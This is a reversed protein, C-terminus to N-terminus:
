SCFGTQCQQQCQCGARCERSFIRAFQDLHRRHHLVVHQGIHAIMQHCKLFDQAMEGLSVGIVGSLHGLAPKAHRRKIQVPAECMAWNMGSAIAAAPVSICRAALRKTRTACSASSAGSPSARCATKPANCATVAAHLAQWWDKLILYPRAHLSRRRGTEVAHRGGRAAPSGVPHDPGQSRGAARAGQPLLGLWRSQAHGHRPQVPHPAPNGPRRLSPRRAPAPQGRRETMLTRAPLAAWLPWLCLDQIKRRSPWQRLRGVADFQNLTREVLLHDITQQVPLNALREAALQAARLHQFNRFGAARSVMNMLTLHSPPEKSDAIQRALARAFPSIDEVVLPITLKSM